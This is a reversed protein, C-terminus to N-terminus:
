SQCHERYERPSVGYYQKFVRSFAFMDAYGVSAATQAVSYGLEVLQTAAQRMRVEKIYQQPSKGESEKFLNSFYSRDLGLRSALERVSIDMMYETEIFNKAQRIYMERQGIKRQGSSLLGLLEWIKGCLCAEKGESQERVKFMAEFLPRGQPFTLVDGCLAQPMAVSSDFGVWIYTWPMDRDAEYYTMEGPRIVFMQSPKLHYEKGDTRFCGEGDLVYHILWYDRVAPGYKHSPACDEKGCVRPNIDEYHQNIIAVSAYM